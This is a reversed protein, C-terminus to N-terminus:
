GKDDKKLQRISTKKYTGKKRILKVPFSTASFATDLQNRQLALMCLANKQAHDKLCGPCKAFAVIFGM